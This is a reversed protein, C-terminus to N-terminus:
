IQCSYKKENEYNHQKVPKMKKITFVAFGFVRLWSAFFKLVIISRNEEKHSNKQKLPAEGSGDGVKTVRLVAIIWHIMSRALAYAQTTSACIEISM